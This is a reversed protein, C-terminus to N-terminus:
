SSSFILFREVPASMDSLFQNNNPFVASIYLLVFVSLKIPEGGCYNKFRNSRNAQNLFGTESLWVQM